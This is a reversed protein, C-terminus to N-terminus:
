IPSLDNRLPSMSWYVTPPYGFTRVTTGLGGRDRNCSLNAAMTAQVKPNGSNMPKPMLTKKFTPALTPTQAQATSPVSSTHTAHTSSVDIASMSKPCRPHQPKPRPKTQWFNPHQSRDHFWSQLRRFRVAGRRQNNATYIGRMRHRCLSFNM